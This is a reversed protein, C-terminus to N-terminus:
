LCRGAEPSLSVSTVRATGSLGRFARRLSWAIVSGSCSRHGSDWGARRGCAVRRERCPVEALLFPAARLLLRRLRPFVALSLGAAYSCEHMTTCEACAGPGGEAAIWPVRPTFLSCARADPALGYRSGPWARGPECGALAGKQGPALDCGCHFGFPGPRKEKKKKKSVTM